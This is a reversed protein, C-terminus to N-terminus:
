FTENINKQKNFILTKKGCISALKMTRAEDHPLLLSFKFLHNSFPTFIGVTKPQYRLEIKSTLIIQLHPTLDSQTVGPRRWGGPTSTLSWQRAWATTTSLRACPVGPMRRWQSPPSTTIEGGSIPLLYSLTRAWKWCTNRRRQSLFTM